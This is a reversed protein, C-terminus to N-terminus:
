ISGSPEHWHLLKDPNNFLFFDHIFYHVGTKNKFKTLSYNCYYKTNRQLSTTKKNNKQKNTKTPNQQQQQKLKYSAHQLDANGKCCACM